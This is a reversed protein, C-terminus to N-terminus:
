WRGDYRLPLEGEREWEAVLQRLAERVELQQAAEEEARERAETCPQCVLHVRATRTRKEGAAPGGCRECPGTVTMPGALAAVGSTSTRLARALDTVRIEERDWYLERVLRDPLEVRGDRFPECAEALAGALM